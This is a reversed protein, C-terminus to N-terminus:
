SGRHARGERLARIEKASDPLLKVARKKIKARLTAARQLVLLQRERNSTAAKKVEGRTATERVVSSSDRERREGGSPYAQRESGVSARSRLWEDVQEKQFRYTKSGVKVAPIEGRRVKRLVVERNLSLYEAMDDVTM